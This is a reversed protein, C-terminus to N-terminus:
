TPYREFMNSGLAEQMASPIPDIRYTPLYQSNHIM